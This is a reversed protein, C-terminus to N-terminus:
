KRRNPLRIRGHPVRSTSHNNVKVGAHEPCKARKVQVAVEVPEGCIACPILKTKADLALAATARILDADSLQSLNM